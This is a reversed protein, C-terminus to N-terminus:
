HEHHSYRDNGTRQLLDDVESYLNEEEEEEEASDNSNTKRSDRRQDNRRGRHPRVRSLQAEEDDEEHEFVVEKVSSGETSSAGWDNRPPLLPDAPFGRAVANPVPYSLYGIHLTILQYIM